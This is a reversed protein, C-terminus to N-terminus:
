VGPFIKAYLKEPYPDRGNEYFIIARTLAHLVKPDGMDLKQHRKFGTRWCVYDIYASKQEPTDTINTWRDIIRAVTRIGHRKRYSKLNIVIARIGDVRRRFKMYGADDVAYAGPWASLRGSAPAAVNGPNNNRVGRPAEATAPHASSAIMCALAIGLALGWMTLHHRNDRM